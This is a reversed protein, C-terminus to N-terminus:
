GLGGMTMNDIFGNGCNGYWKKPNMDDSYVFEMQHSGIWNLAWDVSRTYFDVTKYKELIHNLFKLYVDHNRERGDFTDWWNIIFKLYDYNGGPTESIKGRSYDHLIRFMVGNFRTYYAPDQKCLSALYRVLNEYVISEALPIDLTKSYYMYETCLKYVFPYNPFDGEEPVCWEKKVVIGALHKFDLEGSCFLNYMSQIIRSKNKM